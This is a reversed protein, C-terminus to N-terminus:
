QKNIKQKVEKAKAMIDDYTMGDFFQRMKATDGNLQLAALMALGTFTEKFHERKNEPLSLVIEKISQEFAQDSSADLKPESSCGAVFLLCVIVGCVFFSRMVKRM